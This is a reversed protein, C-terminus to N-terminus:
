GRTRRKRIICYGGTAETPDRRIDKGKSRHSGSRRQGIIVSKHIGRMHRVVYPSEFDILDEAFLIANRIKLRHVALEGGGNPIKASGEASSQAALILFGPDEPYIV